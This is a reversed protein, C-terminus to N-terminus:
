KISLAVNEFKWNQCGRKWDSNNLIYKCPNQIITPQYNNSGMEDRNVLYLFYNDKEQKAVKMENRSWYFYPKGSYSKVEIFKDIISSNQSKLSSIDYGATADIHSIQEIANVLIHTKFKQKEIKLIFVEAGEGHRNKRNQLGKLEKLSLMRKKVEPIIHGDFFKKYKSDV